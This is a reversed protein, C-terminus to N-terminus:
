GVVAHELRRALAGVGDEGAEGAGAIAEGGSDLGQHQQPCAPKPMPLASALAEGAIGRRIGQEAAAAVIRQVPLGAGVQQEALGAGIAEDGLAAAAGLGDAVEGRAEVPQVEGAQAEGIGGRHQGGGGVM